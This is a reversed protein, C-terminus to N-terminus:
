LNTKFWRAWVDEKTQSLIQQFLVFSTQYEAALSTLENRLAGAKPDSTNEAELCSIFSEAEELDVLISKISEIYKLFATKESENVSKLPQGNSVMDSFINVKGKLDDLFRHFDPSESGGPFISNLDWVDSYSTNTM